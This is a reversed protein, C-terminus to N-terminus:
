DTSFDRKKSMLAVLLSLVLGLMCFAMCQAVAMVAPTAKHQIQMAIETARNEAVGRAQLAQQCLCALRESFGPTCAAVVYTCGGSIVGAAFSVISGLQIGQKYTLASCQAAKRYYCHAAYISLAFVAYELATWWMPSLELAEAVRHCIVLALVTILGSRIGIKWM